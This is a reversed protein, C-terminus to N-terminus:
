TLDDHLAVGACQVGARHLASVSDILTRRDLKGARAAFLVAKGPGLQAASEVMDLSGIAAVELSHDRASETASLIRAVASANAGPGLPAVLIKKFTGDHAVLLASRERAWSASVGAAREADDPTKIMRGMFAAMLAAIIGLVLGTGGGVGYSIMPTPFAPKKMPEAIDVQRADGGEGIAALRAELRQGQVALETASLRKVDRQLTLASEAAGPLAALQRDLSDRMRELEIRQKSLSASYTNALPLLQAEIVKIGATRGAVNPENETRQQLLGAREGELKGLQSLLDNIGPSKLFSPYAALRRADIKGSAVQPILDNLAVQEVVVSELQERLKFDAELIAKGSTEPDLVGSAEQQKRLDRQASLLQRNLSDGQVTLFEFRRQNIGKDVTRRERLYLAILLNPMEAATVSDAEQFAITAVEGGSKQVALRKMERKLMDEHDLIELVFAGPLSDRLTITAVPLKITGGAAVTGNFLDASVQYQGTSQRNFAYRQKKFSGDHGQPVVLRASPTGLPSIVRVQLGLSDSAEEILSRSQLLQLETELPSKVATGLLGTTVESPVGIRSLFSTGGDNGTRLLVSARGEFSRPWFLELAAGIALGIIIWTLVLKWGRLTASAIESLDLSAESSQQEAASNM